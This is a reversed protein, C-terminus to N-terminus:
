SSVSLHLVRNRIQVPRAPAGKNRESHGTSERTGCPGLCEVLRLQKALAEVHGRAAEAVGMGIQCVLRRGGMKDFAVSLPLASSIAMNMLVPVSVMGLKLTFKVSACILAMACNM